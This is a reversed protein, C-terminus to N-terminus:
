LLNRTLIYNISEELVGNEGYFDDTSSLSRSLITNPNKFDIVSEVPNNQASKDWEYFCFNDIGKDLIYQNSINRILSDNYIPLFDIVDSGTEKFLITQGNKVPDSSLLQKGLNNKKDFGCVGCINKGCCNQCNFNTNCICRTGILKQLPISFLDMVRRLEEPFEVDYEDIITDMRFSMDHLSDITCLDIDSIDRPINVIKDYVKGLSDGSGAIASVYNKFNPITDLDFHNYKEILDYVTKDEGKRYFDHFNEFKYINFTNSKGSLQYIKNDIRITALASLAIQYPSTRNKQIEIELPNKGCSTDINDYSINNPIASSPVSLTNISYGGIKLFNSDELLIDQTNYHYSSQNIGYCGGTIKTKILHGSANHIINSCTGKVSVTYTIPKDAWQIENIDILGDATILLGQPIDSSVTYNVAAFARSNVYPNSVMTFFLNPKGPMDDIYQVTSLATYGVVSNNFYIPNGTISLSAIPNNLSDLFRWEPNLHSWFSRVNNYPYSNSGSSYLHITSILDKSSINMNFTNSCGAISSLKQSTVNINNELYPGNYVSLNFSSTVNNACSGVYINYFGSNDYIHPSSSISTVNNTFTSDGWDIIIDNNSPNVLTIFNTINKYGSLPFVSIM